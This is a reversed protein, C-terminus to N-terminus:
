VLSSTLRVPSSLSSPSPHRLAQHLALLLLQVVTSIIGQAADLTRVRGPLPWHLRGPRTLSLSRCQKPGQSAPQSAPQDDTQSLRRSRASLSTEEAQQTTGGSSLPVRVRICESLESQDNRAGDCVWM